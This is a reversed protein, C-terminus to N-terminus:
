PLDGRWILYIPM